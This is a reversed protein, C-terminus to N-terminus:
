NKTWVVLFWQGSVILDPSLALPSLLHISSISVTSKERDLLSFHEQAEQHVQYLTDCTISNMNLSNKKIFISVTKSSNGVTKSEISVNKLSM